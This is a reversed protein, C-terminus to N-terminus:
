ALGIIGAGALLSGLAKDLDLIDLSIFIGSIMVIVYLMNSFLLSINANSLVRKFLKRSFKKALRAVFFSITIILVAIILNPLHDIISVVWGHIKKNLIEYT